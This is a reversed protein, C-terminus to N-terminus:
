IQIHANFSKNRLRLSAGSRVQDKEIANFNLYLIAVKNDLTFSRFVFEFRDVYRASFFLTVPEKRILAFAFVFM